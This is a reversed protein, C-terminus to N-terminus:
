TLSPPARSRVATAAHDRLLIPESAPALRRVQPDVAVADSSVPPLWRVLTCWPCHPGGHDPDHEIPECAPLSAVAHLHHAGELATTPTAAGGATWALHIAMPGAGVAVALLAALVARRALRGASRM